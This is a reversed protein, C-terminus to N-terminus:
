QKVMDAWEYEMGEWIFDGECAVENFELELWEGRATDPLLYMMGGDHGGSILATQTAHTTIGETANDFKLEDYSKPIASVVNNVWTMVATVIKKAKYYPKFARFWASRHWFQRTKIKVPINLEEAAWYDLYESNGTREGWVYIYPNEGHAFLVEGNDDKGNWVCPYGLHFKDGTQLTTIKSINVKVQQEGNELQAVRLTDLHFFYLTDVINNGIISTWDTWGGTRATSGIGLVYVRYDQWYFGIATRKKVETLSRFQDRICQSLEMFGRGVQFAYVGDDSLGIVADQGGISAHCLSLPAALGIHRAEDIPADDEMWQSVPGDTQLRYVSRRKYVLVNGMYEILGTMADNSEGIMRRNGSKYVNANGSDSIALGAQIHDQEGGISESTSTKINCTADENNWDGPTARSNAVDYFWTDLDRRHFSQEAEEYSLCKNYYVFEDYCGQLQIQLLEANTRPSLRINHDCYPKAGSGFAEMAEASAIDYNIEGDIARVYCHRNNDNGWGISVFYWNGDLMDMGPCEVFFGLEREVLPIISDPPEGEFWKVYLRSTDTKWFVCFGGGLIMLKYVIGGATHVNKVFFQITGESLGGKTEPFGLGKNSKALFSYGGYHNDYAVINGYPASSARPIEEDLNVSIRDYYLKIRDVVSYIDAIMPYDDDFNYLALMDKSAYKRHYVNYWSSVPDAALTTAANYYAYIMADGEPLIEPVRVVVIMENFNSGAPTGTGGVPITATVTTAENTITSGELFSGTLKEIWIKHNVTDVKTVLAEGAGPSCTVWEGVIFEGGVPANHTVMGSNKYGERYFPLLTKEDSATFLINKYPTPNTEVFDIYDAGTTDHWQLRFRVVADTFGRQTRNVIMIRARKQLAYNGYYPYSVDSQLAPAEIVSEKYDGLLLHNKHSLICKARPPPYNGTKLPTPVPNLSQDVFGTGGTGEKINVEGVKLWSGFGEDAFRKIRRYIDRRIIRRVSEVDTASSMFEKGLGLNYIRIWTPGVFEYDAVAGEDLMIRLDRYGNVGEGMWDLAAIASMPSPDSYSYKGEEDEYVYIYCYQAFGAPFIPNGIWRTYLNTLQGKPAFAGLRGKLWTTGDYEDFYQVDHEGDTLILQDGFPAARFYDPNVTYYNIWTADVPTWNTTGIADNKKALLRAVLGGSNIDIAISYKDGNSRYHRFLGVVPGSIGGAAGSNYLPALGPRKRWFGDRFILNRLEQFEDDGLLKGPTATVM